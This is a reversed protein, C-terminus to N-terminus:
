WRTQWGVLGGQDEMFAWAANGPAGEPQPPGTDDGEWCAAIADKLNGFLSDFLEKYHEYPSRNDEVQEPFYSLEVLMASMLAWFRNAAERINEAGSCPLATLDGTAGYILDAAMDIMKQVEDGTPRTDDNFTGIEVDNNDQTRARLLAAVDEVTPDIIGNSM